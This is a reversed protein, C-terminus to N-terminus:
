SPGEGGESIAGEQRRSRAQAKQADDAEDFAAKVVIFEDLSLVNEADNIYGDRASRLLFRVAEVLATHAPLACKGYEDV